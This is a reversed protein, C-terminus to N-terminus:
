RSLCPTRLPAGVSESPTEVGAEHDLYGGNAAAASILQKKEKLLKRGKLQKALMTRRRMRLSRARALRRSILLDGPVKYITATEELLFWRLQISIESFVAMANLALGAVYPAAM